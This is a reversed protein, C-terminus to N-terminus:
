LETVELPAVEADIVQLLVTRHCSAPDAEYCMVASKGRSLVAYVDLLVSPHRQLHERYRPAIDAFSGRAGATSRFPNGAHPLHEYAIDRAALARELHDRRFDARRSTANARVDVVRTVGHARLLAVFEDVSKHQYGISAVAVAAQPRTEAPGM